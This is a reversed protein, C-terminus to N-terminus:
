LMFLLTCLGGQHGTFKAVRESTLAGEGLDHLHFHSERYIGLCEVLLQGMIANKRIKKKDKRKDIKTKVM